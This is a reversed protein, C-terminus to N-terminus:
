FDRRDFAYASVGVALATAASFAVVIRFQKWLAQEGRIISPLDNLVADSSLYEMNLFNFTIGQVTFIVVLVVIAIMMQRVIGGIAVGLATVFVLMVGTILAAMLLGVTDADDLGFRRTLFLMPLTATAHVVILLTVRFGLRAAVYDYRTVARTLITDAAAHIDQTLAGAGLIGAVFASVIFYLALWGGLVESVAEDEGAATLIPLISTVLAFGVWGRILWSRLNTSGEAVYLASVARQSIM